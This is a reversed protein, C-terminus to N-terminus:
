SKIVELFEEATKKWDFKKVRELGRTTLIIKLGQDMLIRKMGDMLESISYPNILYAANGAIEPLSSRNSAIAPAGCAMAELVPFGFGEYLSPYIFLDALNYLAAKDDEDVYGIYGVGEANNIKKLIDSHKWGQSGAIILSYGKEKLDSSKYAEIICGINKRPELTGLFLIFNDPLHYIEKVRLKDEDDNNNIQYKVDRCLGPYLTKVKEVEIGYRELVDRRTNESVAFILSAKKFQKKPNVFRHWLRRKFSFFEPFFDYSLDHATILFRVKKSLKTFNLNPSFWSEVEKGAKKSVFDDLRIFGLWVVLNFIKNPWRSIIYHVNEQEYKPMNESIDTYSNYFLFYQNEKDIEFIAKFLEYVYEGIGTRNKSMLSRADVAINM